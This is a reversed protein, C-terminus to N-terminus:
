PLLEEFESAAEPWGRRRQKDIATVHQRYWLEEDQFLRVAAEAFSADDQAVYGTEGDIVREYMSGLDQVVTPVGLAQAEGVALCYTENLDGRYLMMRASRLEDILQAKPVPGRLVVGKDKMAEARDLVAKM